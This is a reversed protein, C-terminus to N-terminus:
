ADRQGVPTSGPVVREVVVLSGAEQALDGTADDWACAGVFGGAPSM